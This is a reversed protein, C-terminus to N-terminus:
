SVWGSNASGSAFNVLRHQDSEFEWRSLKIKPRRATSWGMGGQRSKGPRPVAVDALEPFELTPDQRRVCHEFDGSAVGVFDSTKADSLLQPFEGTPGSPSWLKGPHRSTGYFTPFSTTPHASSFSRNKSRGRTSTEPSISVMCTRSGLRNTRHM